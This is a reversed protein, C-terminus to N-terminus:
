SAGQVRDAPWVPQFVHWEEPHRAVYEEIVPAYARTLEVIADPGRTPPLEIPKSIEADWGRRGDSFKTGWVGAVLLPVGARLAISAAGGPMTTKEGFFTVEPGTGKLDRDGLIAVISGREVEEVLRDTVGKTAPFITM